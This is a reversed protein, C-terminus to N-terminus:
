KETGTLGSVRRTKQLLQEDPLLLTYQKINNCYPIQHPTKYNNKTKSPVPAIDPRQQM